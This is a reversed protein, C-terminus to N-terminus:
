VRVTKSSSIMTVPVGDGSRRGPTNPFSMTSCRSAATGTHPQASGFWGTCTVKAPCVLFAVAPASPLHCTRRSGITALVLPRVISTVLPPDERVRVLTSTPSTHSSEPWDLM